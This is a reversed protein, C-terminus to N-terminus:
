ATAAIYRTLPFGGDVLREVIDFHDCDSIVEFQLMGNWGSKRLADVYERSQRQFTPSDHEAVMVCMNMCNNNATAIRNTDFVMRHLLPSLAAAMEERLGLVNSANVADVTRLERLDYVGSVLFVNRISALHVSGTTQM